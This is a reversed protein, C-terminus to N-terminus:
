TTVQVTGNIKNKKLYGIVNTKLFTSYHCTKATRVSFQGCNM